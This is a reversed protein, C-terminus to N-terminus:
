FLPYIRQERTKVELKNETIPLWSLDPFIIVRMYVCVSMCMYVAVASNGKETQLSSGVVLTTILYPSIRILSMVNKKECKEGLFSWSCGNRKGKLQNKYISEMVTSEMASGDVARIKVTYRLNCRYAVVIEWPEVM